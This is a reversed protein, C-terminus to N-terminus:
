NNVAKLEKPVGLVTSDITMGPFRDHLWKFSKKFAEDPFWTFPRMCYHESFLDVIWATGGMERAQLVCLSGYLDFGTLIEDFRFNKKMNVIICCEDFCSAEQPFTHESFIHMPIRKDHFRGCIAGEMDKGVVGVIIWSEPLEALRERLKTLWDERYYMDQHTLVAIDGGDHEIMNLLTNLGKTASEPLTITHCVIDTPLESQKLVMALRLEDNVLCGFIIKDEKKDWRGPEYYNFLAYLNPAYRVAYAEALQIALLGDAHQANEENFLISKLVSGKMFIQEGGIFGVAMNEPAAFLTNVDYARLVPTGEPIQNGRKMSIIVVPDDMKQLAEFVAPEYMDDDAATAYYDDDVIKYERIFDNLSITQYKIEKPHDKSSIFPQIWPEASIVPPRDKFTVPHWILYNIPQYAEILTELLHYRSFPTIIHIHKM